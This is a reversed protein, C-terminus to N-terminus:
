ASRPPHYPTHLPATPISFDPQLSTPLMLEANAPGLFIPSPMVHSCCCFCDEDKHSERDEQPNNPTSESAVAFIEPEIPKTSSKLTRSKHTGISENRHYQPVTIDFGTYVLFLIVIARFLCRKTSKSTNWHSHMSCTAKYAIVCAGNATLILGAVDFTNDRFSTFQCYRDGFM